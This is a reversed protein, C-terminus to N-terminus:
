LRCNEGDNPPRMVKVLAREILVRQFALKSLIFRLRKINENSVKAKTIDTAVITPRITVATWNAASFVVVIGLGVVVIATEEVVSAVVFVKNVDLGVIVVLM